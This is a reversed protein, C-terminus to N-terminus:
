RMDYDYRRDDDRDDDGGGSGGGGGDKGPDDDEDGDILTAMETAPGFAVFPELDPAPEEGLMTDWMSTSSRERGSIRREFLGDIAMPDGPLEAGAASGTMLHNFYMIRQFAPLFQKDRAAIEGPDGLIVCNEPRYKAITGALDLDLREFWSQHLLYHLEYADDPDDEAGTTTFGSRLM